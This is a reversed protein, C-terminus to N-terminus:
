NVVNPDREMSCHACTGCCLPERVTHEADPPVKFYILSCGLASFYAV